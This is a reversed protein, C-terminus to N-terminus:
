TSGDTEEEDLLWKVEDPRLFVERYIRIGGGFDTSTAAYLMDDKELKRAGSDVDILRELPAYILRGLPAYHPKAM